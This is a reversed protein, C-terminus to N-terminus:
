VEFAAQWALFFYSGPFAPRKLHVVKGSSLGMLAMIVLCGLWCRRVVAFVWISFSTKWHLIGISPNTPCTATTVTSLGQLPNLCRLDSRPYCASYAGPLVGPDTKSFWVCTLCGEQYVCLAKASVLLHVCQSWIHGKLFCYSHKAIM